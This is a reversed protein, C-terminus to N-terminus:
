FGWEHPELQPRVYEIVNRFSPEHPWDRLAGLTAQRVDNKGDLLRSVLYRAGQINQQTTLGQRVIEDMATRVAWVPDASIKMKMAVEFAVHRDAYKLVLAILIAQKEQDSKPPVFSHYRKVLTIFDLQTECPVHDGFSDLIEIGFPPIKIEEGESMRQRLDQIASQVRTKDGSYLDQKLDDSAQKM